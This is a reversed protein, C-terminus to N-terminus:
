RASRRGAAHLRPHREDLDPQDPRAFLLTRVLAQGDELPALEEEVLELDSPSPEGVPRQRLRFARNTISETTAM